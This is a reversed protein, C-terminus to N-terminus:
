FDNMNRERWKWVRIQLTSNVDSEASSILNFEFLAYIGLHMRFHMLIYSHVDTTILSKLSKGSFFFMLFDALGIFSDESRENSKFVNFYCCHLIFLFFLLLLTIFSKLYGFSLYM